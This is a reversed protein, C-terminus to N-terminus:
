KKKQLNWRELEKILKKFKDVSHKTMYKDGVLKYKSKSEKERQEGDMYQELEDPSNAVPLGLSWAQYTKNRSKYIYKPHDYDPLLAIDHKQLEKDCQEPSEWEVWQHDVEIKPEYTKNSITVLKLGLQKIYHLTQDLVIDNHAYGFWVASKAKGTHKKRKGRKIVGDPIYEVPKVTLPEIFKKLQRSSVTVANVHQIMKVLPARSLWDPDCVDLIQIAKGEWQKAMDHQYVKQYIITDYKKSWVLDEAENWKDILWKGRIRSSGTESLGHKRSFLYFGVKSM